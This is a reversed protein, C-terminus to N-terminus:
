AHEAGQINSPETDVLLSSDSDEAESAEVDEAGPQPLGVPSLLDDDLVPAPEVTLMVGCNECRILRENRRIENQLQLPILGFCNGCAGDDLLASVIVARGSQHFADYVKREADGIHQLVEVRRVSFTEMRDDYAQREALLVQRQPGVQARTTTAAAELAEAATESRHIHELLQLAEQEDGEIARQIINLETQVAAEERLNSVRNLRQDMKETRVRKADASRELSQADTRMQTLRGTLQSLESELALAPEEVEAMREDFVSLACGIEHIREDLKQVERLSGMLTNTM